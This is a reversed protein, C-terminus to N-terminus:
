VRMMEIIKLNRIKEKRSIRAAKRWFDMETALLQNVQHGALAWTEAGYLM